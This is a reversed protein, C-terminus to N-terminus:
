PVFRGYSFQFKRCIYFNQINRCLPLRPGGEDPARGAASIPLVITLHAKTVAPPPPISPPPPTKINNKKGDQRQAACLARMWPSLGTWGSYLHLLYEWTAHVVRGSFVVLRGTEDTLDLHSWSSILCM